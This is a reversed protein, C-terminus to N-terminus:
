SDIFIQINVIIHEYFMYRLVCRLSSTINHHILMILSLIRSIYVSLLCKLSFCIDKMELQKQSIPWVKSLLMVLSYYKRYTRNVIIFSLINIFILIKSQPYKQLLINLEWRRCNVCLEWVSQKLTILLPSSRAWMSGFCWDFTPCPFTHGTDVRIPIM